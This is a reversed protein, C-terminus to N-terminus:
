QHERRTEMACAGSSPHMKGARWVLLKFYYCYIIRIKLFFFPLAILHSVPRFTFAVLIFSRFSFVPPFREVM